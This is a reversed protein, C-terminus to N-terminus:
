VFNRMPTDCAPTPSLECVIAVPVARIAAISALLLSKKRDLRSGLRYLPTKTFGNAHRKRWTDIINARLNLGLVFLRRAAEIAPDVNGFPAQTSSEGAAAQTAMM